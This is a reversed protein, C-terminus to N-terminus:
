QVTFATVMGEKYHVQVGDAGHDILNCIFLYKGPELDFSISKQEGPPIGELEGPSTIGAAEEDVSGDALKPIDAASFDTKLIVFEHEEQPGINKVNFTTPGASVTHTAPNISWEQVTVAVQNGAPVSTPAGSSAATASAAATTSASARVTPTSTANDDGGCAALAGISIMALAAVLFRM